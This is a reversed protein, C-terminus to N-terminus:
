SNLFKINEIIIKKEEKIYENENFNIKKEPYSFKYKYVTINLNNEQIITDIEKQLENIRKYLKYYNKNNSSFYRKNLIRFM